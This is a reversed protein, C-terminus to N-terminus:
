NVVEGGPTTPGPGSTDNFIGGPILWQLIAYMFIYLFLAILASIIRKKASEIRQPVGGATVYQIGGVIIMGTVGFVVGISLFNIITVARTVIPNDAALAQSFVIINQYM